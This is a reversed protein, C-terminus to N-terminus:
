PAPTIKTPILPDDIVPTGSIHQYTSYLLLGTPIDKWVTAVSRYTNGQFGERYHSIKLARYTHDLIRITEVGENRILDHFAYGPGMIVDFGEVAGAGHQMIRTLATYGAAAGPWDTLWIGYWGEVNEGGVNMRCLDPNAPNVGLYDFTPGGKQEVRGGAAPCARLAVPGTVAETNAGVIMPPYRRAAEQLPTEAFASAAFGCFLAALIFRRM